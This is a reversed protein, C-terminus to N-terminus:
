SDNTLYSLYFGMNWKCRVSYIKGTFHLADTQNKNVCLTNGLELLLFTLRQVCFLYVGTRSLYHIICFSPELNVIRCSNNQVIKVDSVLSAVSPTPWCLNQSPSKWVTQIFVSVKLSYIEQICLHSMLYVDKRFRNM